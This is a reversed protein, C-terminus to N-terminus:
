EVVQYVLTRRTGLRQAQQVTAEKTLTIEHHHLNGESHDMEFLEMMMLDELDRLFEATVNEDDFDSDHHNPVTTDTAIQLLKPENDLLLTPCFGSGIKESGAAELINEHAPGAIAVLLIDLREKLPIAPVLPTKVLEEISSIRSKRQYNQQQGLQQQQPRKGKMQDPHPGSLHAPQGLFSFSVFPQSPPHQTLGSAASRGQQGPQSPFSSSILSKTSHKQTLGSATMKASKGQEKKSMEKVLETKKWELDAILPSADKHYLEKITFSVSIAKAGKQASELLQIGSVAGRVCCIQMCDLLPSILSALQRPVHGIQCHGAAGKERMVKLANLDYKNHPERELLVSHGDKLDM